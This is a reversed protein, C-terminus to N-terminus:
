DIDKIMDKIESIVSRYSVSALWAPVRFVNYGLKEMYKDRRLDKKKDHMPGDIEFVLSKGILFDARFPGIKYQFKFKISERRLIECYILEIKSDADKSLIQKISYGIHKPEKRKRYFKFTEQKVFDFFCKKIDYDDQGDDRLDQAIMLFKNEFESRLKKTIRNMTIGM